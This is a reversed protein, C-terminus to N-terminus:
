THRPKTLLHQSQVCTFWPNSVSKSCKLFLKAIGKGPLAVGDRDERGAVELLQRYMSKVLQSVLPFVADTMHLSRIEAEAVDVGKGSNYDLKLGIVHSMDTLSLLKGTATESTVVRGHPAYKVLAELGSTHSPEELILPGLTLSKNADM